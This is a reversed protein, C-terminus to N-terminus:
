GGLIMRYYQIIVVGSKANAAGGDSGRGYNFVGYGGGGGGCGSGGDGGYGGGGGSAYYGADGGNGGYGGGGGGAGYGSTSPSSTSRSSGKGGNGGYGGGGGGGGGYTDAGSGAVGGLGAGTYDLSMSTTDTGSEGSSGDNGNNGGDGGRGGYQGGSGGVGAGYTAYAGGGGGGGGYTGGSGGNSESVGVSSSGYGGGGGGGYSGNGGHGHLTPYAGGGTGGNGGNSDVSKGGGNATILNGFSTAGGNTVTAENGSVGAAGITILYTTGATPTFTDHEMYGGGGGGGNSSLAGGGGGFARVSVDGVIGQPTTWTANETFIETVLDLKIAGLLAAFAEDPTAPANEAIYKAVFAQATAASLSQAKSFAEDKTYTNAREAAYAFVDTEMGRPDYVDKRMDGAGTGDAGKAAILRWCSANTPLVGKCAATCLYSSGNFVVKNDPVYSKEADYPEWELSEELATVLGNHKEKVLDRILGDFVSKNEQASGTLMDPASVVGHQAVDSDTIRLESLDSM